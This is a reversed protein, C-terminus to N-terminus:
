PKLLRRSDALVKLLAQCENMSFNEAMASVRLPEGAKLIDYHSFFHGELFDDQGLIRKSLENGDHMDRALNLMKGSFPESLIKLEEQLEQTNQKGKKVDNLLARKEIVIRRYQLLNAILDNLAPMESQLAAFRFNFTPVVTLRLKEPLGKFESVVNAYIENIERQRADVRIYRAMDPGALEFIVDRDSALAALACNIVLVAHLTPLVGRHLPDFNKCMALNHLSQMTLSNTQCFLSGILRSDCKSTNGDRDVCRNFLEPYYFHLIASLEEVVEEQGLYFQSETGVLTPYMKRLVGFHFEALNSYGNVLGVTVDSLVGQSIPAFPTLVNGAESVLFRQGGLIVHAPWYNKDDQALNRDYLQAPFGAALLAMNSLYQNGIHSTRAVFYGAQLSRNIDAVTLDGGDVVEIGCNRM